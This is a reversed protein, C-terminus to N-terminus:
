ENEANNTAEENKMAECADAYGNAYAILSNKGETPLQKLKEGIEKIITKERESMQKVETEQVPKHGYQRM